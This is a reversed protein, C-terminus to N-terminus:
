GGDEHILRSQTTGVVAPRRRALRSIARAAIDRPAAIPSHTAVSESDVLLDLTSSCMPCVLFKVWLPRPSPALALAPIITSMGGASLTAHSAM